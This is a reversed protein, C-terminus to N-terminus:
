SDGADLIERLRRTLTHMTFPKQVFAIGEELVGRHAVVDADYGSMFVTRMGPELELLRQQLQRGNMEPLVVDTLLLDVQGDHAKVVDLATTPTSATLVRYGLTRLFREALSLIAQEDEVVLITETGRVSGEESAGAEEAEGRYRPLHVEFTSGVGAESRVRILGENQRVIGYVTSLGLGTGKGLAKTTYFPEFIHEVVEPAMGVGNDSVSLVVYEGGAVPFDNATPDPELEVNATRLTIRGEAGEIADRANVVLNSIIQDVQSLDIFVNWLRSSLDLDLTVEEGLLRQLIREQEVASANLNVATPHIVQRRSFALLQRTLEASRQAAQLVSTLDQHLMTDPEVEPLAMESASLIVALMNNFDHAIGGALRAVAEMKQAEHLQRELAARGEESRVRETVDEFATAFRGKSVRYAHIIFHKDLPEVYDQFTEPEGSFAVAGYRAILDTEMIGPIVETVRRGVVESAKLGTLREFSPNVDLFVYDVPEGEDDLVMEHVAVGSIANTFLLRYEERSWDLSRATTVQETIDQIASVMGEFTGDEGLLPAANISLFVRNHEPGQIAHRIDFVPELTEQVRRFPLESEPFPQGDLTTIEWSPANYTPAGEEGDSTIGLIQQAFPNTFTIRGLADVVVIGVPSTENIKRLLAREGALAQEAAKRPTIDAITAVLAEVQGSSDRIPAASVSVHVREGSRSFGIRELMQLTEGDWVRGMIDAFDSPDEEGVIPLPRGVVEDASWGFTREATPNWSLVTGERSLTVVAVPTAALLSREFETQARFRAESQKRETIDREVSLLLRRGDGLDLATLSAEVHFETGDKRRHVTEVLATEGTEVKHLVEEGDRETMARDMDIVSRGLFEERTYGHVEHARQNADVIVVDGDEQVELVLIYDGAQQFLARFREESARLAEEAREREAVEEELRAAHEHLRAHLLANQIGLTVQDALARCLDLQRQSVEWIGGTSTSGLILVAVTDGEHALPLFVLTRLGRLEVIEREAPTLDAKQTDPLVVTEGSSAAGSLHPHDHLSAWRLADPMEPSLPPVTAGLYVRHDPEVLYVAGSEAGILEAGTDVIAQLVAELDLTDALVRGVQLFLAQERGVGPPAPPGSPQPPQTM